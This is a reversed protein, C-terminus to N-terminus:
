EIDKLLRWATGDAIEALSFQKYSMDHLWAARSGRYLDDNIANACVPACENAPDTCIAPVGLRVAEFIATGSHGIAVDSLMLDAELTTVWKRPNDSPHLRTKVTTFRQSARFRIDSINQGYDALVIVSCERTKWPLMGPIRRPVQGTAFKRSGDPQLWGISVCAPDGWWARDIMLVRPHDKWRNLAYYPGSVVHVDACFDVMTKALFGCAEFAIAHDVQHQLNPNFHIVKQM